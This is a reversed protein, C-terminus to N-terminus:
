QPICLIHLDGVEIFGVLKYLSLVSRSPLSFNITQPKSNITPRVGNMQCRVYFLHITNGVIFHAVCCAISHFAIAPLM